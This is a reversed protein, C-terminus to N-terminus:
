CLGKSGNNVQTLVIGDFISSAKSISIIFDCLKLMILVKTKCYILRM